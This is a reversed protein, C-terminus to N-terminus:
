FVYKINILHSHAKDIKNVYFMKVEICNLCFIQFHEAVIKSLLKQFNSFKFNAAKNLEAWYLIYKTLFCNYKEDLVDCYFVLILYCCIFFFLLHCFCCKKSCAYNFKNCGFWIQIILLQM